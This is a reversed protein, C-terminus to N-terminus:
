GASGHTEAYWISNQSGFAGACTMLGRFTKDEILCAFISWTWLYSSVM